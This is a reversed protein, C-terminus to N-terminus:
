RELLPKEGRLMMDLLGLKEVSATMALSDIIKSNSGDAFEGKNLTLQVQLFRQLFSTNPM